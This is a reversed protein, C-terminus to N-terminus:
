LTIIHVVYRFSYLYCPAVPEGEVVFALALVQVAVVPNDSDVASGLVEVFVAHYCVERVDLLADM